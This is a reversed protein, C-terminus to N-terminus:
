SSNQYWSVLYLIHINEIENHPAVGFINLPIYVVFTIFYGGFYNLVDVICLYMYM